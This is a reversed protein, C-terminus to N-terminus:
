LKDGVYNGSQISGNATTQDMDFTAAATLTQRIAGGTAGSATILANGAQINAGTGNQDMDIASISIDQTVTGTLTANRGDILNGAQINGTGISGSVGQELTLTSAGTYKQTLGNIEKGIAYNGAQFNDNGVGNQGLKVTGTTIIEQNFATGTGDGIGKASVRNIAQHSNKTNDDQTLTLNHTTTTVKQSSGDEVIGDTTNLNINNIAQMGADTTSTQTLTTPNSLTAEQIITWSDALVNTTGLSLAIASAIVSTRVNRM